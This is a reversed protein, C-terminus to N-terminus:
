RASEAECAADFERRDPCGLAIWRDLQTERVRVSRGVRVFRPGFRNSANLKYVQRASLGCRVAAQRITLLQEM